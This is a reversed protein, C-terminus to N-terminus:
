NVETTVGSFPHAQVAEWAIERFILDLEKGPFGNYDRFPLDTPLSAPDKRYLTAYFVYGELREFGNGMHGLTDRWISRDKGGVAQHLGEVGPLPDVLHRQALLTFARNTPLIFARDGYDKRLAKIIDNYFAERDDNMKQFVEHTLEAESAPEQDLQYLQPWADSLYFKMEPQYKLAFEMWCAYYAPRDHFYPGWTMVDWEANALSALLKPKPEGDFQFIGNEEEWKYRSSGTIGGGTHAYLQQQSDTAKAIQNLISYGPTMFSHGTGIIRLSGDTPKPYSVVAEEQGVLEAYISRIEEPTRYSVANEPFREAEWGPDVEFEIPAGWQRGKTGGRQPTGGQMRKRYERVEEISLKADGNLDADPFRRLLSELRDETLNAQASTSSPLSLFFLSFAYCLLSKM